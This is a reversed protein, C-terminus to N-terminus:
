KGSSVFLGAHIIDDTMRKLIKFHNWGFMQNKLHKLPPSCEMVTHLQYRSHLHLSSESQRLNHRSGISVPVLLALLAPGIYHRPYIAFYIFTSLM